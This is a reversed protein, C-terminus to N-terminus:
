VKFMHWYPLFSIALAIISVILAMVNFPNEQAQYLIFRLRSKGKTTLIISETTFVSGEDYDPAQRSSTVAYKVGEQTGIIVLGDAEMRKMEAKIPVSPAAPLFSPTEPSYKKQYLHDITRYNPFNIRETVEYDFEEEGFTDPYSNEFSSYNDYERLIKLLRYRM